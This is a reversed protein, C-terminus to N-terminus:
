VACALIQARLDEFNEAVMDPQIDSKELDSRRSVGTLLLASRLGCAVAARIDTELYDGVVLVDDAKVGSHALAMKFLHPEPKGIVRPHVDCVASIAALLAGTGPRFGDEMNIGKDPNTAVFEAGRGILNCAIRLKEYTFGRDWGVIVYDAKEDCLTFGAEQLAVELGSEGVVYARGPALFRATAQASTVVDDPRCAIGFGQLQHCIEEPLRNSRNTVFLCHVGASRMDAVFAAAGPIEQNGIYLTGDLDLLLSKVSM